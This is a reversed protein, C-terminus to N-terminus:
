KWRCCKTRIVLLYECLHLMLIKAGISFSFLIISLIAAVSLCKHNWSVTTPDSRWFRRRGHTEPHFFALRKTFKLSNMQVQVPSAGLARSPSGKLSLPRAMTGQHRWGPVRVSSMRPKNVSFLFPKLGVLRSLSPKRM